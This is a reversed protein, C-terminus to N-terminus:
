LNQCYILIGFKVSFMPKYVMMEPFVRYVKMESHSFFMLKSFNINSVAHAVLWWAFGNSIGDM